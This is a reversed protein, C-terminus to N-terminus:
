FFFPGSPISLMTLLRARGDTFFAHSRVCIVLSPASWAAVVAWLYWGGRRGGSRDTLAGCIYWRVTGSCFCMAVPMHVRAFRISDVMALCLVYLQAPVSGAHPRQLASLWDRIKEVGFGSRRLLGSFAKSPATSYRVTHHSLCSQKTSPSM